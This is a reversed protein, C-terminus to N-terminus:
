FVADMSAKEGERLAVAQAGVLPLARHAFCVAAQVKDHLFAAEANEAPDQGGLEGLKRRALRAQELLFHGGLTTGFMDLLPVANLALLLPADSRLPVERLVGELNAVAQGLLQAAGGLEADGALEEATAAAAELLERAPAGGRAPLKRGVFDLAQIGNTGEYISTIKADRLYQEAPYDRVYGYGGFVQLSWEAVRFGWDSPWAKCVPTLLEVLAQWRDREEGEALRSRDVYYSTRLLLARMAQVYAASTLLTRRVDPHELIPVQAASARGRDWHRMQRRERAYALAAQQAAGAVATAQVGVEIRAANMMQFMQRMGDGEEGLLFGESEGRAGFLLSCTPSGHIGLKHEVGGCEVHNAEGLGGGPLLRLKPVVFLSLGRTGAPAEPTRALVAHIVNDTLDHDGYTIFIKEGRIRYRGEGLPQATTACAGLDSGAQPETLCMTGAWEGSYMRRCVLDRLEGSGFSEV